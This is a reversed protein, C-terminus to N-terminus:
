KGNEKRRMAARAAIIAKGPTDGYGYVGAGYPPKGTVEGFRDSTNGVRQVQWVRVVIAWVVCMGHEKCWDDLESRKVKRPPKKDRPPHVPVCESKQWMLHCAGDSIPMGVGWYSGGDLVVVATAKIRTNRVWVTM